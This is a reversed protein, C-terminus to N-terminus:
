YEAFFFQMIKLRNEKDYALIFYDYLTTEENEDKIVVMFQNLDSSLKNGSFIQSVVAHGKHTGVVFRTKEMTGAIEEKSKAAQMAPHLLTYLTDYKGESRATYFDDLLQGATKLIDPNNIDLDEFFQFRTIYFTGLTDMEVTGNFYLGPPDAHLKVAFLGKSQYQGYYNIVTCTDLYEFKWFGTLMKKITAAMDNFRERPLSDTLTKALYKYSKETEGSLIGWVFYKSVNLVATNMLKDNYNGKCAIYGFSILKYGNKEEVLIFEFKLLCSSYYANYKLVYQKKSQVKSISCTSDTKHFYRAVGLKEKINRFDQLISDEGSKSGLMQRLDEYRGEDNAKMISKLIASPNQATSLTSILLFVVVALPRMRVLIPM